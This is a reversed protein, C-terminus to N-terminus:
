PHAADYCAFYSDTEIACAEFDQLVAYDFGDFGSCELSANAECSRREIQESECGLAESLCDSNCTAEDPDDACNMPEVAACWEACAEEVSLTPGAGGGGGMGGGGMPINGGSGDTGGSGDGDGTGGSGDGDGTGGTGDGDGVPDKDENDEDPSCAWSVSLAVLSAAWINKYKMISVGEISGSM